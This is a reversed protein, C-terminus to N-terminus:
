AHVSLLNFLYITSFRYLLTDDMWTLLSFGAMKSFVSVGLSYSFHFLRSVSLCISCIENTYQIKFFSFLFMLLALLHVVSIVEHSASLLFWQFSCVILPSTPPISLHSGNFRLLLSALFGDMVNLEWSERGCFFCGKCSDWRLQAACLVHNGPPPALPLRGLALGKFSWIVTTTSLIPSSGWWPLM